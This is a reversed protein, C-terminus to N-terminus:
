SVKHYYNREIFLEIKGDEKIEFTVPTKNGLSYTYFENSELKDDLPILPVSRKMGLVESEAFLMGERQVVSLKNIGKYTEYKGTFSEIKKQIQYIPIEKEPNKEMLMALITQCISGGMHFGVNAETVVGIKLEPILAFNASSLGTSGGHACLKTGLFNNHIVIGFGYGTEGYFGGPREISMSFMQEISEPKVLQKEEFTGKNNLMILFNSFEKVSCILGGGPYIYPDFTHDTKIPKGKQVFYPTMRDEIKEFEERIFTANKMKLPKFIEEKIFDEYEMKTVAEIIEGLMAFGGNFYFYRKEPIDVIESQAGNIHLYFDNKSAFPVFKEEQPAALRFILIEAFGLNPIGSSHSMLHRIRIPNEESGLKVPIHKSIPDDISLKGQEHLIMIAFCTVAKACSGIGYSTETTAPLNRELNRCGFGKAYIIEQEKTVAISLGPIKMQQMLTTIRQEFDEWLNVTQATKEM